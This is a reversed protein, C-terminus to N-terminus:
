RHGLTYHERRIHPVVDHAHKVLWWTRFAFRSRQPRPDRSARGAKADSREFAGSAIVNMLEHDIKDIRHFRQFCRAPEPAFQSRWRLAAEVSM